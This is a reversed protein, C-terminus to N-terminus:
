ELMIYPRAPRILFRWGSGSPSACTHALDSALNCTEDRGPLGSALKRGRRAAQRQTPHGNGTQLLGQCTHVVASLPAAQSCSLLQGARALPGACGDALGGGLSFMGTRRAPRFGCRFARSSAQRLLQTSTAPGAAAARDCLM